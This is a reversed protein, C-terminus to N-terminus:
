RPRDLPNDIDIGKWRRYDTLATDVRALLWGVIVVDDIIGILMLMEPILDIPSILYVLALAMWGFAPWPAPRYRGSIVDACMPLFLRLARVIRSLAGARHKLRSLKFLSM